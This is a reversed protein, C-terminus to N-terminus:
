AEIEDKIEEPQKHHLLELERGSYKKIGEYIIVTLLGESIAIPLQTIGFVSLFKVFSALIGGDADPFAFALQLSTMAYTAIDGIFAASFVCVSPKMKCKGLVKYLGYAAIPGIIAMSFVNAGLTTLGGHALLIAQFLLIIIGLVSMASPGFLIAGLGVGTPHSSSGTVSPLKLASLVFSFAGCMALLLLLKSSYAVKKKISYYGRVLFPICLAGWSICWAPPLYGEMIHMASVYSAPMALLISLIISLRFILKENMVIISGKKSVLFASIRVFLHAFAFIYVVQMRYIVRLKDRALYSLKCFQM